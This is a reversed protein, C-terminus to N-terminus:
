EGPQNTPTVAKIQDKTLDLGYKKELRKLESLDYRKATIEAVEDCHKIHSQMQQKTIAGLRVLGKMVDTTWPWKGPAYASNGIATSYFCGDKGKLIYERGSRIAKEVEVPRASPMQEFHLADIEPVTSIISGM